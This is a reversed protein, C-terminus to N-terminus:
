TILGKEGPKAVAIGSTNHIYGNKVEEAAVVMAVIHERRLTIKSDINAGLLFFPLMQISPKGTNENLAVNLVVPKSITVTNSDIDAVRAVIEEQTLLKITVIENAEPQKEILM